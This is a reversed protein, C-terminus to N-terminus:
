SRTMFLGGKPSRSRGKPRESLILREASSVIFGPNTKLLSRLLADFGAPVGVANRCATILPVWSERINRALAALCCRSPRGCLRGERKAGDSGPVGEANAKGLGERIGGSQM